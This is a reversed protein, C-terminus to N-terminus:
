TPADSVQVSDDGEAGGGGSLDGGSDAAIEDDEVGDGGDHLVLGAHGQIWFVLRIRLSIDSKRPM